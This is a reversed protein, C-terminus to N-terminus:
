AYERDGDQNTPAIALYLSLPITPLLYPRVATRGYLYYTTPLLNFSKINYRQPVKTSIIGEFCIQHGLLKEGLLKLYSLLLDIKELVRKVKFGACSSMM